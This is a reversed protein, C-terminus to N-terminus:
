GAKRSVKAFFKKLTRAKRTSWRLLAYQSPLGIDRPKWGQRTFYSHLSQLTTSSSASGLALREIDLSNALANGLLEAADSVNSINLKAADLVLYNRHLGLGMVAGPRRGTPHGYRQDSRFKQKASENDFICEIADLFMQRASGNQWLSDLCHGAIDQPSMEYNQWRPAIRDRTRLLGDLVIVPMLPLQPLQNHFCIGAKKNLDVFDRYTAGTGDEVVGQLGNSKGSVGILTMPLGVQLFKESFAALLVGAFTDPCPGEFIPGTATAQEILSRHILGHYPMPVTAVGPRQFMETICPETSIVQQNRLLPIQLRNRQDETAVCPWTYVSMEWRISRVDFQRTLLDLASLSWPFLADDDGLFLIWEGQAAQLARTWNVTMPVATDSRLYRIRDSQFSEVVQRTEPLSANDSVVIEYDDFSQALCTKLTHPLTLHRMRTPIVVSFKPGPM